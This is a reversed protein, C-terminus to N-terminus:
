ITDYTPNLSQLFDPKLLRYFLRKEAAHANEIFVSFSRNLDGSNSPLEAFCDVDVISGMKEPANILAVGNAIQLLVKCGEEDVITRFTTGLAIAPTGAIIFSLALKPLVNGEFFNIYRLGFREIRTIFGAAAIPEFATKVDNGVNPWGPYPVSKPGLAVNHPGVLIIGRDGGELRYHAQYLLNPDIKGMEEPISAAPLTVMKPFHTRVSEYVVGPVAQPPLSTQFRVEAVVEVIPCPNISIPLKKRVGVADKLAAVSSMCCLCVANEIEQFAIRGAATFWRHDRPASRAGRLVGASRSSLPTVSLCPLPVAWKARERSLRNATAMHHLAAGIALFFFTTLAFKARRARQQKKGPPLSVDV